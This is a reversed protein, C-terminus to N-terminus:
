SLPAKVLSITENPGATTAGNGFATGAANTGLYFGHFSKIMVKTATADQCEVTYSEWTDAKHKDDDKALAVVVSGGAADGATLYMNKGNVLAIKGKIYPHDHFQWQETATAVKSLAGPAQASLYNDGVKLYFPTNLILDHCSKPTPPVPKDGKNKNVAYVIIGVAAALLAVGATIYIIKKTSSM